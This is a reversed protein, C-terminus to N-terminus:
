GSAPHHHNEAARAPSDAQLQAGRRYCSGEIASQNVGLPGHHKGEMTWLAFSLPSHWLGSTIPDGRNSPISVPPQEASRAGLAIRRWGHSSPARIEQLAVLSSQSSAYM